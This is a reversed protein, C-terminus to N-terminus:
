YITLGHPDDLYAMEPAARYAIFVKSTQRMPPFQGSTPQAPHVGTKPCPNCQNKTPALYAKVSAVIIDTDAGHGGFTRTQEYDRQANAAPAVGEAEIRVTV